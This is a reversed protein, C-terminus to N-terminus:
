SFPIVAACYSCVAVWLAGTIRVGMCMCWVKPHHANLGWPSLLEAIGVPCLVFCCFVICCWAVTLVRPHGAAPHSVVRCPHVVVGARPEEHLLACPTFVYVRQTPERIWVQAVPPTSLLTTVAQAFYPLCVVRVVCWLMVYVGCVVRVYMVCV